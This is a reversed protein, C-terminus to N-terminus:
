QLQTRGYNPDLVISEILTSLRNLCEAWDYSNSTDLMGGLFSDIMAEYDIAALTTCDKGFDRSLLVCNRRDMVYDMNGFANTVIPICHCSMAEIPPLSLGEHLSTQLFFENENYLKAIELDTPRSTFKVFPLDLVLSEDVGFASISFGREHLFRLIRKSYDFGKIPEGRACVLVSKRRKKVSLDRHFVGKDIGLGVFNSHYKFENSFVKQIWKYNVIYIFEPRYSAAVRLENEFDRGKYYSTEIDQALWVPIGRLVSARWVVEATEWWTAIKIGDKNSLFDELAAFSRFTHFKVRPDIPFWDPRQALSLINVCYGATVLHNCFNFIVRHGGGIGTDKLVFYIVTEDSPSESLRRPSFFQENKAWFYQKSSIERPGQVKGRTISEHHIIEALGCYIVRIGNQWARLCYDVDEFGMLFGEDFEGIKARVQAPIYLAAGTCFLVDYSEIAPAYFSSCYRWSHDFWELSNFNRFGGAHQIRGDPYLLRAGILAQHKRATKHLALVAGPRLETDSNLLLVDASKPAARLGCNVNSSFGRNITNRVLVIDPDNQIQDLYRLHSSLSSADDTIIIKDVLGNGHKRVSDICNKLVAFDNYSPVVVYLGGTRGPTDHLLRKIRASQIADARSSPDIYPSLSRSCIASCIFLVTKRTAAYMGERRVVDIFKQVHVRLKLLIIHHSIM